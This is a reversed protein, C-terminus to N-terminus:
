TRKLWEGNTYAYFDDGPKVALDMHAVVIGHTEPQAPTQSFAPLLLAVVSILALCVGVVKSDKNIFKM